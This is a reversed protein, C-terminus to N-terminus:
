EELYGLLGCEDTIAIVFGGPGEEVIYKWEDDVIMHTYAAFIADSFRHFVVVNEHDGWAKISREGIM